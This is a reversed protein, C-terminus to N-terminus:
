HRQFFNLPQTGVPEGFEVPLKCRRHVHDLPSPTHTSPSVSHRTIPGASLVVRDRSATSVARAEAHEARGSSQRPASFRASWGPSDVWRTSEALKRRESIFMRRGPHNAPMQADIQISAPPQSARQTKDAPPFRAPEVGRSGSSDQGSPGVSARPVPRVRSARWSEVM